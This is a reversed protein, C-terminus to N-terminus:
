DDNEDCTIEFDGYFVGDFVVFDGEYWLDLTDDDLYGRMKIHCGHTIQVGQCRISREEPKWDDIFDPSEADWASKTKAGNFFRVTMGM